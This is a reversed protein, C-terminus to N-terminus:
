KQKLKVNQSTIIIITTKFIKIKQIIKRFRFIIEFFIIPQNGIPMQIIKSNTIKAQLIYAKLDQLIGWDSKIMKKDTQIKLLIQQLKNM